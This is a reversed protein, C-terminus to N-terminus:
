GERERYVPEDTRLDVEEVRDTMGFKEITDLVVIINKLIRVNIEPMTIVRIKVQVPYLLVESFVNGKKIFHIESILKLLEPREKAVIELQELYDLVQDPLRMGIKPEPYTLGSIIPLNKLGDYEGVRFVVGESDFIVPVSASSHTVISAAVPTRATLVIDIGDPFVKKVSVSKVTPWRGLNDAVTETKFLFYNETGTLGALERIEQVSLGVAPDAKVHVNKLILAKSLVFHYFVEAVFIVLLILIVIKLLRQLNFEKKESSRDTMGSVGKMDSFLISSM